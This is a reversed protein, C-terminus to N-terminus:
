NPRCLAITLKWFIVGFNAWYLILIQIFWYIKFANQFTLGSAVFCYITLNMWGGNLYQTRFLQELIQITITGYFMYILKVHKERKEEFYNRHSVQLIKDINELAASTCDCFQKHSALWFLGSDRGIRISNYFLSCHIFDEYHRTKTINCSFLWHFVYIGKWLTRKKMKSRCHM